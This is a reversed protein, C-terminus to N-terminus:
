AQKVIQNLIVNKCNQHATIVPTHVSNKAAIEDFTSDHVDDLMFAPRGDKQKIEVSVNNMRLRKAHRIYFGFAPLTGFMRNEPYKNGVEPIERLADEAKAEPFSGELMTIAVNEITVDEIYSGPVGCISCPHAVLNHRKREEDNFKEAKNVTAKIDSIKINRIIGSQVTHSGYVSRNRNGLRIFIATGAGNMVINRVTINEMIGGDVLELAIGSIGTQWVENNEILINRFGGSSDTGMKIGNCLTRVKNNRVTGRNCGNETYGKLCIGDDNANIDCNEVIFDDCDLIDVGDANYFYNEMVTIHDIHVHRCRSYTQTWWVSRRFTVDKVLINECEDFWIFTPNEAKQEKFEGSGDLKANGDFIGPGTVSVDHEGQAYILSRKMYKQYRAESRLSRHPYDKMYPSSLVIADKELHLNVKSKLVVSGTLFTGAPVIVKGGGNRFCTDIAKQIATTNLKKGDGGAGFDTINYNKEAAATLNGGLTNSIGAFFAGAGALGFKVFKRREVNKM